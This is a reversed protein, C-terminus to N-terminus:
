NMVDLSVDAPRSRPTTRASLPDSAPRLLANERIMCFSAVFVTATGVVQVSELLTSPTSTWYVAVLDLEVSLVVEGGVVVYKQVIVDVPINRFTCRITEWCTFYM